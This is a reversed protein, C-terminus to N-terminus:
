CGVCLRLARAGDESRVRLEEVRKTLVPLTERVAQKFLGADLPLYKHAKFLKCSKTKAFSGDTEACKLTLLQNAVDGCYLRTVEQSLGMKRLSGRMCIIQEKHERPGASSTASRRRTLTDITTMPSDSVTSAGLVFTRACPSATIANQAIEGVLTEDGVKLRMLCDYAEAAIARTLPNHNATLRLVIKLAHKDVLPTNHGRSGPMPAYKIGEGKLERTLAAGLWHTWTNQPDPICLWELFRFVYVFVRDNIKTTPLNMPVGGSLAPLVALVSEVDARRAAELQALRDREAHTSAADHTVAILAAARDPKSFFDEWSNPLLYTVFAAADGPLIVWAKKHAWPVHEKVAPAFVAEHRQAASKWAAAGSKGSTWAALDYAGIFGNPLVTPERTM